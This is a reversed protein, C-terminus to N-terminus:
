FSAKLVRGSKPPLFSRDFVDAATPKAALAFTDSVQDIAKKMRADVVDGIGIEAQEPSLMLTRLAYTLRRKEMDAKILPEIATLAAIAEDPNAVTDRVAKHIAAVLGAVAKPNDKALKKSVMVGNSYVDVGHQGYMMWVVDKDPDKGIAAINIYSTVNFM